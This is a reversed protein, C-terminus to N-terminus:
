MVEPVGIGLISLGQALVERTAVVLSLRAQAIADDDCLVRLSSDQSGSTYWRSFEAAIDLLYRCVIHPENSNATRVMTEGLDMLKKALEWAGENALLEADAQPALGRAEAKRLISCCRAYAYQVYPGSDGKVSLVEEWSFDVDKDRQSALNAFVVAGVGVIRATEALADPAMDPNVERVREKARTTAEALVEKLLVVNGSRTGTKKGGIRVLGFSVHKCHEAWEFGAKKLTTFLQSFHLSQGRDVVYLSRSFGYSDWRYMAAALDRTGYLTAGDKKRLLFPPFGEADLDVILAGESISTLSKSDLMELVGPMADEFESEGKVEEFKIGLTDYVDQFETLSIDRFLRWLRRAEADGDELKKFWGRGLEELKSDNKMEARFRVYLGNLVEVNLEGEPPWLHYAALLMGHTTGWDGLHNIGIVRYGLSRYLNALSHGIVTSRIHHYALHKSINPSSYDICVSQNAGIDAPILERGDDRNVSLLHRYVAPRSLKFNVFPGTAKASELFGDPTFGEVVKAALKPPPEGLAKAAPFLGVALDGLQPNPPPNVAFLSPELGVLRAVTTACANAFPNIPAWM